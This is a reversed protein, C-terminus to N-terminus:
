EQEKGYSNDEDDDDDNEKRNNKESDDAGGGFSRIELFPMKFQCGRKKVVFGMFAVLTPLFWLFDPCRQYRHAAVLCGRM